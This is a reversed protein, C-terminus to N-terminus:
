GSTVKAVVNLSKTMERDNRPLLDRMEDLSRYQVGTKTDWFRYGLQALIRFPNRETDDFHLGVAEMIFVPRCREIMELGGEIIPFENGDVDLKIVDIQEVSNSRCWDDFRAFEVHDTNVVHQGNTKWSSRFRIERSAVNESSLALNFASAQPFENLSLNRELKRFAYSTPEFAYVKGETGALRCFRLTHAGINAGIDIIKMGPRVNESIVKVVDREFLGLYLALDIMEGLDLEYVAGDIESRVKRNRVLTSFLNFYLVRLGPVPTARYIAHALKM